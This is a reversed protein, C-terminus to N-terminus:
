FLSGFDGETSGYGVNDDRRNRRVRLRGLAQRAKRMRSTLVPKARAATRRARATGRKARTSVSQAATSAREWLVSAGTKVRNPFRSSAWEDTKLALGPAAGVLFMILLILASASAEVTASSVLPLSVPVVDSSVVDVESLAAAEEVTQPGLSVDFDAQVGGATRGDQGAATVDFLIAFPSFSTTHSEFLASGNQTGVFSAELTEWAGNAFHLVRVGCTAAPCGAEVAESAVRFVLSAGRLDQDGAISRASIEVFAHVAGNPAPVEPPLGELTEVTVDVEGLSPSAADLTLLAVPAQPPLAVPVPAGPELYQLRARYRPRAEDDDEPAAPVAIQIRAEAAVTTGDQLTVALHIIRDAGPASGARYTQSCDTRGGEGDDLDGGSRARLWMCSADGLSVRQGSADVGYGTFKVREGPAVVAVAPSLVVGM